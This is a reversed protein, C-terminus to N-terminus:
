DRDDGRGQAQRKGQARVLGEVRVQGADILLQVRARSIDPMAQALYMDVRMGPPQPIPTSFTRSPRTTPMM